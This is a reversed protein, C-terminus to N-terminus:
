AATLTAWRPCLYDPKVLVYGEFDSDLECHRGLPCKGYHACTSCSRGAARLPAMDAEYAARNRERKALRRRREGPSVM